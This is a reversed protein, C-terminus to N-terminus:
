EAARALVASVPALQVAESRSGLAWSFLATVTDPRTRGVVVVQGEQQAAFAARGLYRTIVPATQDADDLLRFATAAPLGLRRASEEAANLGRPFALMGHGTESLAALVTDLIPRDGQIRSDPSDLLAV